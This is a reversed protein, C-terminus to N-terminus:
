EAPATVTVGEGVVVGEETPIIADAPISGSYADGGHLMSYGDEPITCNTDNGLLNPVEIHGQVYLECDNPSMSNLGPGGVPVEHPNMADVIEPTVTILLEIDNRQERVRRFMM